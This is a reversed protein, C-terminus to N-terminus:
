GCSKWLTFEGGIAVADSPAETSREAIHAGDQSPAHERGGDPQEARGRTGGAGGVRLETEEQGVARNEGAEALERLKIIEASSWSKIAARPRWSPFRSACASM